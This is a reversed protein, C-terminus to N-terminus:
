SQVLPKVPCRCIAIWPISDALECDYFRKAVVMSVRVIKRGRRYAQGSAKSGLNEPEWPGGCM